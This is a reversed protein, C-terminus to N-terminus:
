AGPQSSPHQLGVLRSTQKTPRSCTQKSDTNQHRKAQKTALNNTVLLAVSHCKVREQAHARLRPGGLWAQWTCCISGPGRSVRFTSANTEEKMELADCFRSQCWSPLRWDEFVNFVRCNEQTKAIDAQHGHHGMNSSKKVGMAGWLSGFPAM